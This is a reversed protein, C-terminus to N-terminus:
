RSLAGGLAGGGLSGLATGALMGPVGAVMGGGLAGGMAGLGGGLAGYGAGRARHNEDAAIAGALTGPVAGAAGILGFGGLTAGLSPAARLAIAYKSFAAEVGQEYAHKLM